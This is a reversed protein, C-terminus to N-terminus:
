GISDLKDIVTGPYYYSLIQRYNNGGVAMAEAGYQSMGVRHGKGHTTLTIGESDTEVYFATSNLGLLKRLETGSYQIGGIMMTDVGGGETYAVTGFWTDPDGSLKRGLAELFQEITFSVSAEFSEAKEEGPSEVAQLYPIDTGWVAQADETRGGSCSFYTSEALKGLYTLVLGSTANVANRVKELNEKTGQKNIYESPSIFAQCCLSNTCVGAGPHRTGEKQRKLAYTRAVVSQAMLAQEEFSAPMEALVVGLIYEELEMTKILSDQYVAIYRGEQELFTETETPQIQVSAEPKKDEFAFLTGFRMFIGPMVAGLLFAIVIQKFDQKM